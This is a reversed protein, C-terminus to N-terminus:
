EKAINRLRRSPLRTGRRGKKGRRAGGHLHGKIVVGGGKEGQERTRNSLRNRPLHHLGRVETIV